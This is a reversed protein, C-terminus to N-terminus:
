SGLILLGKGEPLSKKLKKTAAPLEKLCTRIVTETPLSADFVVTAKTSLPVGKSSLDKVMEEVVSTGMYLCVSASGSKLLPHWDTLIEGSKTYSTSLIINRHTGRKSLSDRLSASAASAATIGPIVDVKIGHNTVHEVEEGGRGFIFPDGGKLRAVHKGEKAHQVILNNIEHQVLSHKGKRKGVYIVEKGKAWELVDKGILADVLCIDANRIAKVAKVSLLEKDGPGCGILTVRGLTSGTSAPLAAM